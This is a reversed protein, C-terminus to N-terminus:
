TFPPNALVITSTEVIIHTISHGPIQLLITAPLSNSAVTGSNVLSESTFSYLNIQPPIKIVFTISLGTPTNKIFVSTKPISPVAPSCNISIEINSPLTSSIILDLSDIEINNCM